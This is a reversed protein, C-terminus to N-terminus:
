YRISSRKVSSLLADFVNHQYKSMRLLILISANFSFRNLVCYINTNFTKATAYRVITFSIHKYLYCLSVSKIPEDISNCFTFLVTYIEDSVAMSFSFLTAEGLKM